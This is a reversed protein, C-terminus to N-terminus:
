ASKRRRAILHSDGHWKHGPEKFKCAVKGEYYYLIQFDAFVERLRGPELYYYFACCDEKDPFTNPEVPKDSKVSKRFDPDLYNRASIAVIGGPRVARKIPGIAREFESRKMCCIVLYSIVLDFRAVPYPYTVADARKIRINTLGNDCRYARFRRLYDASKDFATVQFGKRAFFASDAGEGCGVDLLQGSRCYELV